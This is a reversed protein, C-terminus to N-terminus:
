EGKKAAGRKVRPILVIGATERKAEADFAKAGGGKYIRYFILRIKVAMHGRAIRGNKVFKHRLLCFVM